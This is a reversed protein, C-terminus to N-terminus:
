WHNARGIAVIQEIKNVVGSVNNSHRVMTRWCKTFMKSRYNANHDLHASARYIERADAGLAAKLVNRYAVSLDRVRRNSCYTRCGFPGCLTDEFGLFARKIEGNDSLLYGRIGSALSLIQDEPSAYAHSPLAETAMLLAFALSLKFRRNKM